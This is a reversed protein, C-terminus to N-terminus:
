FMWMFTRGKELNTHNYHLNINHTYAPNLRENGGSVYQSDSIDLISNLQQIGPNNTYSMVFLRISNQQNINFNGMLFYAFDNYSRKIPQTQAAEVQGNLTSYQYSLNVVLTNREKTYSYGPGVRHTTYDSTYRNSLAPDLIGNTYSDDNGFNFTNRKSEQGTYNLDYRLTIQSSKSIPEAYNVAANVGLNDSTSANSLYRLLPSYTGDANKITQQNSHSRSDNNNDRYNVRGDITMMRGNESLKLRYQLFESINFGHYDGDSGSKIINYLEAGQQLGNTASFPDYSQM